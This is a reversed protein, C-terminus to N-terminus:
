IDPYSVQGRWRGGKPSWDALHDPFPTGPTLRPCPEPTGVALAVPLVGAWVPLSLDADFDLPPDTKVKASIENLELAVMGTAELEAPSPGRIQAWRGPYLRDFMAELAELKEAEDILARPTGFAMVSRFRVSHRFASRAMVMGDLLCVTFCVEGGSAGIPRSQASGHWYVADGQRWYVTPTAVPQGGALYAVHAILGADLVAHVTERDYRGRQPRRKLTTRASVPYADSGTTM